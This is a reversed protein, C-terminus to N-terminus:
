AHVLVWMQRAGEPIEVDTTTSDIWPVEVGEEIYSEVLGVVSCKADEIAESETEGCGGGGPLNLIIVSWSNEGDHVIALHCRYTSPNFKTEGIEYTQEITKM